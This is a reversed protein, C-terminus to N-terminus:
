TPAAQLLQERSVVNPWFAPNLQESLEAGGFEVAYGSPTQRDRWDQSSTVNYPYPRHLRFAQCSVRRSVEGLVRPSFAEDPELNRFLDTVWPIWGPTTSVVVGKGMTVIHLDESRIPYRRRLPNTARDPSLESLHVGVTRLDSPDCCAEASLAAAVTDFAYVRTVRDASAVKM